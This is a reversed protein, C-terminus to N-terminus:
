ISKEDVKKENYSRLTYRLSLQFINWSMEEEVFDDYLIILSQQTRLELSLKKHFNYNVGFIVSGERIDDFVEESGAEFEERREGTQNNVLTAKHEFETTYRVVNGYQPGFFVGFGSAFKCEVLFPIDVVFMTGKVSFSESWTLGSQVTSATITEGFNRQHINLEPRIKFMSGLPIEGSIGLAFGSGSYEEEEITLKNVLYGSQFGLNMQQAVSVHAVLFILVFASFAYKLITQIM